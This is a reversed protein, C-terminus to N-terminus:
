CRSTPSTSRCIWSRFWKPLGRAWRTLDCQFHQDRQDVPARHVNAAIPFAQGLGPAPRAAPEARHQRLREGPFCARRTARFAVAGCGLGPWGVPAEDAKETDLLVLVKKGAANWTKVLAREGDTSQTPSAPLLIILEANGAGTADNVPAQLIPAQTGAALRAPDGRMQAALTEGASGPAESAGAPAEVIAIRVDREAAERIPRLDFEQLNKWVNAISNLTGM